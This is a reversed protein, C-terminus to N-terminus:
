GFSPFVQAAEIVRFCIERQDAGMAGRSAHIAVLRWGHLGAENMHVEASGRRAALLAVFIDMARLECFCAAHGRAGVAVVARAPLWRQEVMFGASAKRQFAGVLVHAACSAVFVQLADGAFGDQKVLGRGLFTRSAM